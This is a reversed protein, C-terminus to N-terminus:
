PSPPPPRRRVLLVRIQSPSIRVVAVGFPASVDAPTFRIFTVGPEADHLDVSLSFDGVALRRLLASRGRVRVHVETPVDGSIELGSPINRFELPVRYGVEGYPETTYTTWLLFSLGLAVLKLGWNNLVWRRFFGM